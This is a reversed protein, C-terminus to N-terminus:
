CFVEIAGPVIEAEMPLFGLLDGDVQVPTEKDSSLVAKKIRYYLVDTFNTHLGSIVGIAFRVLDLQTKGKYIIVDLFGDDIEAFPAVKHVGGYFHTNSILVFIGSEKIKGGDIEINIRTPIYGFFDKVGAAIYAYRKIIKKVKLNTKMVAHADYGCSAMMSFYRGNIKGLDIRRPRKETITRAADFIDIRIGLERALVNSGGIPLIGLVVNSGALGNIVENITGDGSVSIVCEFRNKVAEKAIHLAHEPGKTFQVSLEFGNDKLIQMASKLYKKVIRPNTDRNVIVKTKM